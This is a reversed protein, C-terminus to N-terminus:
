PRQSKKRKQRQYGIMFRMRCSAMVCDHMNSKKVKVVAGGCFPCYVAIPKEYTGATM